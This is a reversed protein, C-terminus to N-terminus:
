ASSIGYEKLRRWLTTIGINLIKAAETRNNKTHELVMKTYREDLEKLSPMDHTISQIDSESSKLISSPLHSIMIPDDDALIMAYEICNELERINGPWTYNKLVRLAEPTIGPHDPNIKSIFHRALLLIDERRENLSCLRIPFVALRFYLDERFTGQAIRENLDKNTAAIFRAKVPITDVGGVPRVKKEQLVRLLKPQLELPLEAIEDLFVTGDGARVLLGEKHSIAGTFAGKVHGFLESEILNFPIAACNVAMFPEDKKGSYRHIHRALVEKGTGSHGQVLVTARSPAVKRALILSQTMAESRTVIGSNLEDDPKTKRVTKRSANKELNELQRKHMQQITKIHESAPRMFVPKKFGEDDEDWDELP